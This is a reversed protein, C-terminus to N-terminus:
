QSLFEEIAKSGKKQIRLNIQGIDETVTNGRVRKKKRGGDRSPTYGGTDGATLIKKRVGGPLSKIMPFGDRDSGGTIKFVYGGFGILDGEFEEGIAKQLLSGAGSSDEIQYNYTRGTEPDSINAQFKVM